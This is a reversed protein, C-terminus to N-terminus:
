LNVREGNEKVGKKYISAQCIAWPNSGQPLEGKDIRAQVAAVCRDLKGPNDKIACALSYDEFKKRWTRSWTDLEEPYEAEKGCLTKEEVEAKIGPMLPSKLKGKPGDFEIIAAKINVKVGDPIDIPQKGIRSM